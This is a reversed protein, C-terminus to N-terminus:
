APETSGPPRARKTRSMRTMSRASPSPMLRTYSLSIGTRLFSRPVGHRGRRDLGNEDDVVRDRPTQGLERQRVVADVRRLTVHERQAPELRRPHPFSGPHQLVGPERREVRPALHAEQAEKAACASLEAAEEGTVRDALDVEDVAVVED